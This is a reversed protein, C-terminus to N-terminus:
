REEENVIERGNFTRMKLVIPFGPCTRTRSVNKGSQRPCVDLEGIEHVRRLRVFNFQPVLRRDGNLKHDLARRPQPHRLELGM